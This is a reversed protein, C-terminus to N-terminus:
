WFAGICLPAQQVSYPFSKSRNKFWELARYKIKDILVMWDIEKDEFKVQNRAFWISWIAAFFITKWLHKKKKGKGKCLGM